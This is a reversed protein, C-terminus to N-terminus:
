SPDKDPTWKGAQEAVFAAEARIGLRSYKARQQKLIKEVRSRNIGEVSAIENVADQFSSGQLRHREISVAMDFDREANKLKPGRRQNPAMLAHKAALPDPKSDLRVKLGEFLDALRSNVAGARRQRLGLRYLICIAKARAEDAVGDQLQALEFLLRWREARWVTSRRHAGTMGYLNELELEHNIKLEPEPGPDFRSM